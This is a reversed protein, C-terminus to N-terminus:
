FFKGSVPQWKGIGFLRPVLAKRSEEIVFLSVGAILAISWEKIGIPVTHFAVQLFPLYVVGIQLLIAGSITVPLWRNRQFGLRFVTYEDSRAIFAKFWEMVAVACFTVTRAEELSMRAQAWSFVFLIGLSMLTAMFIVRLILGPFLLGVRPHRPPQKLEDGTKGELGLPIASAGDTVLNIWIIQLALLPAKGVALVCLILGLLEGFNSSLLYFLVNRLRNFIARGEEVAAVVSAFNDDALVMDSAEKSVDTGTIGMAVGIDAAKLAPADNVGDGTMAVIYGRRKLARVIRLKQLPEIRAFVSINEIRDALMDDDMAQLEAGTVTEGHLLELQRAIAEATVKHDGTIMIVRIGAQKCLKIAEKAEPRPPDAMGFLGVFVLKGLIMAETLEVAEVPLDIYATAIVRLAQRAMTDHAKKIAEIHASDLPVVRGDDRLVSSSMSLLKEPAGKIFAMRAGDAVHSTLMYQKESQFPIEELRPYRTELGEKDLGAKAAAVLLAGETPDGVISCCEEGSDRVLLANNCLAGIKLHMALPPFDGPSFVKGDHWFEGKPVYGEGSVEIWRGGCFIRQVTMQSLTLTGTKDSCIVTASGLTEVAVLKRVIANRRAMAQMGMALVVTVVAPLGEPIASVGAAVALFFMDLWGIGKLLGEIFLIVLAGLVLFIIFRGLRSISEQLPTKEAEIEELTAAISGIATSMGTSVVVAAARGYTVITNMYVMNKRDALPVEGHLPLTHKEVPMSEGTLIAEDVKLNSAEMLRADAPVKDGIELLIIDGPVIERAPIQKVMGNRRVKAKPAAMRLLAEMAREARTEQLFGITANALLVGFIIWADIYHQTVLSIVAAGLLIYILPSLFQKLFLVVLSTKKRRSLENVGYRELREEAESDTLGHRRSDLIRLAEDVPLNHWNSITPEARWM